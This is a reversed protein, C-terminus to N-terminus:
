VHQYSSLVQIFFLKPKGALTKCKDATFATWLSEPKYVSDHAYLIGHEGHTLVVVVLADHDSHDYASALVFM